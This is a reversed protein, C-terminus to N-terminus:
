DLNILDIVTQQSTNMQLLQKTLYDITLLKNQVDKDLQAIILRQNQVTQVLKENEVFYNIKNTNLGDLWKQHIKTKIHASFSSHSDYFKDKRSGCPCILGKKITNFAPIKDIYNGNNDVSPSYVDPEVILEM